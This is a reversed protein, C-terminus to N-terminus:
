KKKKERGGPVEDRVLGGGEEKDDGVRGRKDGRLNETGKVGEAVGPLGLRSGLGGKALGRSFGKKSIGPGTTKERPEKEKKARGGKV